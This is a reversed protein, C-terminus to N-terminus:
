TQSNRERRLEDLERRRYPVKPHLIFDGYPPCQGGAAQPNQAHKLVVRRQAIVLAWPRAATRYQLRGIPSRDPLLRPTFRNRHATGVRSAAQEHFRVLDLSSQQPNEAHKFVVRRQAIVLQGSASLGVSM